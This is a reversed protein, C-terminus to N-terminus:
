CAGGGCRVVMTHESPETHTHSTLSPRHRAEIGRISSSYAGVEITRALSESAEVLSGLAEINFVTHHNFALWAASSSLRWTTTDPLWVSTTTISTHRMCIMEIMRPWWSQTM